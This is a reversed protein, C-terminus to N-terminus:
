PELKEELDEILSTLRKAAEPRQFTNPLQGSQIAALFAERNPNERQQQGFNPGFPGRREGDQAQSRREIIKSDM